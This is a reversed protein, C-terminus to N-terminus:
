HRTDASSVPRGHLWCSTTERFWPSPVYTTDADDGGDWAQEVLCRVLGRQYATTSGDPGDAIVHVLAVWGSTESNKWFQSPGYARSTSPEKSPAMGLSDEAVVVCVRVPSTDAAAAWVAVITDAVMHIQVRSESQWSSRVGACAAYVAPDILLSTTVPPGGRTSPQAVSERNGRQPRPDRCALAVMPVVCVVIRWADPIRRMDPVFAARRFETGTDLPGDLLEFLDHRPAASRGSARLLSKADSLDRM